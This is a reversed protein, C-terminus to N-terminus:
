NVRTLEGSIKDHGSHRNEMAGAIITLKPAHAGKAKVSIYDGDGFNFNITVSGDNFNDVCKGSNGLQFSGGYYKVNGYLSSAQEGSQEIDLHFNGGMQPGVWKTNAYNGCLTEPTVAYAASFILCLSLMFLSRCPKM